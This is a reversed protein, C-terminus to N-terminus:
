IYWITPEGNVYHWYNGETQPIEESYYFKTATAFSGNYNANIRIANYEESTGEYFVANLNNWGYFVGANIDTIGNPLVITNISVNSKVGFVGSRLIKVKEGIVVKKLNTCQYLWSQYQDMSTNKEYGECDPANWYVTELTSPAASFAITKVGEGITVTKISTGSLSSFHINTVDNPIVVDSSTGKYGLLWKSESDTYTILGNEDTSIKSKSIDNTIYKAYYAIYGYNSAGISFVFSSKNIIQFLASCNYFAENGIAVVNPEVVVSKLSKCNKFSQTGIETVSETFIFEDFLYTCNFFAYNGIRTLDGNFSFGKLSSCNYLFYDPIENIEKNLNIEILKDFGSFAGINMEGNTVNVTKLSTPVYYTTLHKDYGRYFYQSVAYSGEYEEDGFFIGFGNYDVYPVTIEELSSFGKFASFGIFTVSNPVVMKRVFPCPKTIGSLLVACGDAIAFDTIEDNETKVFYLYPNDDNGFYCGGDKINYELNNCGIISNYASILKDGDFILHKLSSCNVIANHELTNVADGFHIEELNSCNNFAYSWISVVRAGIKVSKIVTDDVFVNSRIGVVPEDGIYDPIIVREIGLNNTFGTIVYANGSHELVLCKLSKSLNSEIVRTEYYDCVECDRRELGDSSDTPEITTAWSTFSHTAEDSKLSSYGTDTCAHWHTHDDYSWGTDFNHPIKDVYDTKYSYECVECYHLTYGETEFTPEVIREKMTHEAIDKKLGGYGNDTCAHWHNHEDFSWETSYNHELKDGHKERYSYGCISCTYEKYGDQEYTPQVTAIEFSHPTKESQEGCESCVKWHGDSDYKWEAGYRHYHSANPDNTLYIKGSKSSYTSTKLELYWTDFFEEPTEYLVNFTRSIGAGIAELAYFGNELYIGSSHPEYEYDDYHLIMMQSYLTNETKGVNKVTLNCIVFNFDTKDGLLSSGVQKTNSASNLTYSFDGITITDGFGYKTDNNKSLNSCATISLCAIAAGLCFRAIRM